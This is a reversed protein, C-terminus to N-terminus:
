KIISHKKRHYSIAFHHAYDRIQLLLADEQKVPDLTILDKLSSSIITEEKKALGVLEAHHIFPKIANIQGKGGDVIVLNPEQSHDKYRRQVIERLAAYDDQDTLTKISFKRFSKKEPIGHVYRICSGVIAQGQMHSIDFCDIVYPIHKLKLRQKIKILLPLKKDISKTTQKSPMSSLKKITDIVIELGDKYTHLKQAQEFELNEIAQKISIDLTKIAQKHNNQLLQKALNLRCVYFEANFNQMCNGACIGIHYELCGNEIKKNCLKLQFTEILFNYVNHAHKKSLFPGLYTGKKKKLREISITPIKTQSFFIFIFPNGEKLLINFKPQYQKILQAELHLAETESQTPIIDISYAEKLLLTTKYDPQKTFYSAVRKAINKAKGIYIIEKEANKFLYLGPQKSLNKPEKMM